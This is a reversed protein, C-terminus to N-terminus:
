TGKQWVAATFRLEEDMRLRLTRLGVGTLYCMARTGEQCLVLTKAAGDLTRVCGAQKMKELMAATDASLGMTLDCLLLITEARVPTNAGLHIVM